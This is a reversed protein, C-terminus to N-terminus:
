DITDMRREESEGLEMGKEKDEEWGKPGEREELNGEWFITARVIFTDSVQHKLSTHVDFAGPQISVFQAFWPTRFCVLLIQLSIPAHQKKGGNVSTLSKTCRWNMSEGKDM